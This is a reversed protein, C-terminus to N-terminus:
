YPVVLFNWFTFNINKYELTYENYGITPQTEIHEGTTLKHLLTTKGAKDLGLMVIHADKKCFLRGCTNGM